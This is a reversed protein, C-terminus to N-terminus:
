DTIRIWKPQSLQTCSSMPFSLNQRDVRATLSEGFIPTKDQSWCKNIPRGNERYDLGRLKVFSNEKLIETWKETAKRNMGVVPFLMELWYEEM